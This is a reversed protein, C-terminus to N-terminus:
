LKRAALTWHRDSTVGIAAPAIGLPAVLDALEDTTLSAFLSARLLDRQRTYRALAASETPAEGAYRAVLADVDAESEPRHLDRVFLLGGPATVRWMEALAAGPEPIHHVLSNSVVALFTSAAFPLAKADARLIEVDATRGTQAVNRRALALMQDAMDVAVIPVGPERALIELPILATGTGVDLMKGARLDVGGDHAFALLDECFRANVEAHDMADYDQAEEATDMVEPELVRSLGTAALPRSSM